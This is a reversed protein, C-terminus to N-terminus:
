KTQHALSGRALYGAPNTLIIGRYIGGAIVRKQAQLPAVAYNGQISVSTEYDGPQLQLSARSHATIILQTETPGDCILVISSDTNNELIVNALTQENDRGTALFLGKGSYDDKEIARIDAQIYAADLQEPTFNAQLNAKAIAMVRLDDQNLLFDIQDEICTFNKAAENYILRANLLYYYATGGAGALLVLLASIAPLTRFAKAVSGRVLCQSCIISLTIGLWAVLACLLCFTIPAPEDQALLIKGVATVVAGAVVLAGLARGRDPLNSDEDRRSQFQSHWVPQSRHDSADM